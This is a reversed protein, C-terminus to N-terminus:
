YSITTTITGYFDFFAGKEAGRRGTSLGVGGPTGVFFGSKRRGHHESLFITVTPTM